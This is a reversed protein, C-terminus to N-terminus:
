HAEHQRVVACAMGGAGGDSRVARGDSHGGSPNPQVRWRSGRGGLAGRRSWVFGDTEPPREFAVYGASSVWIHDYVLGFFPFNFGLDVSVVFGASVSLETRKHAGTPWSKPDALALRYEPPAVAVMSFPSDLDLSAVRVYYPGGGQTINWRLMVGDARRHLTPPVSAHVVDANEDLIDTSITHSCIGEARLQIEHYVGRATASFSYWAGTAGAAALSQNSSPCVNPQGGSAWTWALMSDYSCTSPAGEGRGLEDVTCLRAGMEQCLESAHVFTMERVCMDGGDLVGLLSSTGCVAPSGAAEPDWGLDACDLREACDTRGVPWDSQSCEIGDWLDYCPDSDMYEIRLTEAGHSAASTWNSVTRLDTIGSASAVARDWLQTTNEARIQLDGTPELTVWVQEHAAADWGFTDWTIQVADAGRSLEVWRSNEEHFRLPAFRVMQASGSADAPPLVGSYLRLDHIPLPFPGSGDSLGGVTFFQTPCGGVGCLSPTERVSAALVGDVLMTRRERQPLQEVEVTLRHWGDSLSPLVNVLDTAGVHMVGDVSALLAGEGGHHQLAQASTVQVYCDLTWNGAVEIGSEGLQLWQAGVFQLATPSGGPGAIRHPISAHAWGAYPATGGFVVHDHDDVTVKVLPQSGVQRRQDVAAYPDEAWLCRVATDFIVRHEDEKICRGGESSYLLYLIPSGPTIGSVIDDDIDSSAGDCVGGTTQDCSHVPRAGASDVVVMHNISPDDGAGCERKVFGVYPVAEFTYETVTGSGDSGLNGVVAFDLPVDGTNHTFFVWVSDFKAVQYHGGLGFCGTEVPTFEDWYHLSGLPCGHPDSTCDGMLSTTLVNGLDYMDGGGDFIASGSADNSSCESDAPDCVAPAIFKAWGLCFRKTLYDAGQNSAAAEPSELIMHAAPVLDTLSAWCLKRGERDNLNHFNHSDIFWNALAYVASGGGCGTGLNPDNGNGCNEGHEGCMNGSDGSGYKNGCICRDAWQLGMYKYGTCFTACARQSIQSLGLQVLDGGACTQDVHNLCLQTMKGGDTQGWTVEGPSPYNSYCGLYMGVSHWDSHQLGEATQASRAWELNDSIGIALDGDRGVGATVASDGQHPFEFPLAVKFGELSVGAGWYRLSVERQATLGLIKPIIARKWEYSWSFDWDHGAWNQEAVTVGLPDAAAELAAKETWLLPAWRNQALNLSDVNKLYQGLSSYESIPGHVRNDQLWFWELSLGTICDPVTGHLANQSVAMVRLSRLRCLADAEIAGGLGCNWLSLEELADLQGIAQWPVEQGTLDINHV